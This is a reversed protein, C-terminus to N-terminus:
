KKTAKVLLMMPRRLEDKMYPLELMDKSPKAEILADINFGIDILGMVIQTLTHHYKEVKYDLFNTTRKGPLYYNDIPWYLPNNDSDYIWDQNIGSTFTPHEINFIFSGEKKLTTYVKKYIVDLDEIYHLVLNSIVIDYYDEPYDYDHISCVRYEIKPDNNIKKAKSIMKESIDIGIVKKCGKDAVYKCHWGYGCGLDLITKNTLDPFLEKLQHWEGAAQLGYKSRAMQSYKEFFIEDDYINNM